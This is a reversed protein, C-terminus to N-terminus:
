VTDPIIMAVHGGNLLMKKGPENNINDGGVEVVDELVMNVYDDFGILKGYFEKDSTMLVRVKNGVSKDIIELPLIPLEVEVNRSKWGEFDILAQMCGWETIKDQLWVLNVPKTLYDNCGATLANKRDVSSNSSATLAVIIVPSRFVNLDLKNEDQLIEMSENNVISDFVGIKNLKELHRIEKTAEIGSKVPLQIDMLVLHFGGTRWKDIAEQGNKAIQYHIKRKRLFAGLIAQNIANDEVILVSISPLVKDKAADPKTKGKPQEKLSPKKSRETVEQQKEKPKPTEPTEQLPKIKIDNKYNESGFNDYVSSNRKKNSSNSNTSGATGGSTGTGAGALTFNKPLLLVAKPNEKEGNNESNTNVNVATSLPSNVPNSYSRRHNTISSPSVSSERINNYAATNKRNNNATTNTYKMPAQLQQQPQYYQNPNYLASPSRKLNVPQPHKVNHNHLKLFQGDRPTYTPEFASHESFRAERAQIQPQLHAQTQSTYSLPREHAVDIILADHLTMGTPFYGDLISWVNKDAELKIYRSPQQQQQQKTIPSNPQQFNQDIFLQIDAVDSFNAIGHPYKSIISTKLDDIIDQPYALVTTPTGHPLKVWVRRPYNQQQVVAQVPQPPATAPATGSSTPVQVLQPKIYSETSTSITLKNSDDVKLHKQKKDNDVPTGTLKNTSSNKILGTSIATDPNPYQNM